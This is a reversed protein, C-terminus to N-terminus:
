DLGYRVGGFDTPYKWNTSAGVQVPSSFMGFSQTGVVWLTQDTKVAYFGDSTTCVHKWNTLNGVQVPSFRNVTDSLGLKGSTNEGWAWLTGDTKIAVAMNIGGSVYKWTTLSGVQVPSSRFDAGTNIGLQGFEGDGWAWLTGNTKIAYSTTSGLSLQKWDRLLGVQVPSSRTIITGLGLQGFQNNGWMWLSGDNKVAGSFSSSTSVQKWNTLLGVQVPSSRATAAPLGLNGAGGQGWAWLTGDVKVGLMSSDFCEAYKWNTLLGVQVPSSRAVVTGSGLQGSSNDGWTWLTGDDGIAAVSGSGRQAVTRWRTSIGIQVPSSRDVVDGLGLRGEFNSGVSWIEGSTINDLADKTISKNDLTTLIDVGNSKFAM